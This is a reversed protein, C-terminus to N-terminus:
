EETSESWAKPRQLHEPLITSKDGLAREIQEQIDKWSRDGDRPWVGSLDAGRLDTGSWDTTSNIGAKGLDMGKLSARQLNTKTLYMGRLDAAKELDVESLDAGSLNANRLDAESLNAGMWKTDWLNTDMLSAGTLDAESLDTRRLDAKSLDAGNLKTRSLDADMLNADMLNASRLDAESLNAGVLRASMLNADRLEAEGLNAGRLNAGRLNAGRLTAQSLRAESLNAGSLDAETLDVERLDAGSWDVGSLNRRALSISSSKPTPPAGPPAGERPRRPDQLELNINGRRMKDSYYTGWLRKNGKGLDRLRLVAAGESPMADVNELSHLMTTQRAGYVYRVHIDQPNKVFMGVTRATAIRTPQESRQEESGQEESGQEESGQEEPETFDYFVFGMSRWTQTIYFEAKKPESPEPEGQEGDDSSIRTLTGKWTGELNPIGSVRRILPWKWLHRDFLWLLIGFIVLPTVTIPVSPPLTVFFEKLYEKNLYKALHAYGKTVQQAGFVSLLLLGIYIRLRPGTDVNYTVV